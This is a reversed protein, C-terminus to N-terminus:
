ESIRTVTTPLRSNALCQPILCVGPAQLPCHTCIGMSTGCLCVCSYSYSYLLFCFLEIIAFALLLQSARSIPWIKQPRGDWM